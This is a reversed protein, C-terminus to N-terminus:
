FVQFQRPYKQSVRPIKTSTNKKGYSNIDQQQIIESVFCKKHM